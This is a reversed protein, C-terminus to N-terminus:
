VRDRLLGQAKNFSLASFKMLDPWGNVTSKRWFQKM